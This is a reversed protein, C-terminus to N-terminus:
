GTTLGLGTNLPSLDPHVTLDFQPAPRLQMMPIPDINGSAAKDHFLIEGWCSLLPRDAKSGM